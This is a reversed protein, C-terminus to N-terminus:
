PASNTGGLTRGWVYKSLPLLILGLVLTLIGRLDDHRLAEVGQVIWYASVILLAVATAKM